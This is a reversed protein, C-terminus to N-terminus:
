GIKKERNSEVRTDMLNLNSLKIFPRLRDVIDQRTKERLHVPALHTVIISVLRAVYEINLKGVHAEFEKETM